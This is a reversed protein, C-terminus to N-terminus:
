LIFNHINFESLQKTIENKNRMNDKLCNNYSNRENINSLKFQEREYEGETSNNIYIKDRIIKHLNNNKSSNNNNNINFNFIGKSQEINLNSRSHYKKPIIKNIYNSHYKESKFDINNISSKEKSNNLDFLNFQQENKNFHVSQNKDKDNSNNSNLFYNPNNIMLKFKDKLNNKPKPM